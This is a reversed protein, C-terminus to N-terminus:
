ESEGKAPGNKVLFVGIQAFLNPYLKIIRNEDLFIAKQVLYNRRRCYEIFDSISLFHLNPTDYWMHPLSPTVPTRGSFLIQWRAKYYAFNPFGIIVEKGVRLTEKLVVELKVVQQLSQNLIVYDFSKDGYESLGCDIDQQSVSLGRSVCQHIAQEDIEIGHGKVKNRSTLLYLLEGDGCGLDLISSGSPILDMIVRHELKVSGSIKNESHSNM